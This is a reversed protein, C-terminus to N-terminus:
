PAEVILSVPPHVDGLVTLIVRGGAAIAAREADSLVWASYMRNIRDIKQDRIELVGCQGDRAPDWDAPAGLTRTADEMKDPKM